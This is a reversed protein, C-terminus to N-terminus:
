RWIAQDVDGSDTISMAPIVSRCSVSDIIPMRRFGQDAHGPNRM